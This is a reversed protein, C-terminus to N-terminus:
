WSVSDQLRALAAPGIGPVADLDQLGTFPGVTERHAIIKEATAPGVGPLTELTAADATNLDVRGGASSAATGAPPRPATAPVSAPAAAAGPAAALSAEATRADPVLVQQGDTLPAALNIRETRAAHTAGGAADVADAIRAGSPLTVVGPRAVAGVVHVSVLGASAGAPDASVAARAGAPPAAMLAPSGSGPPATGAAATASAGPVPASGSPAPASASSATAAVAAPAAATPTPSTLWGVAWWALAVVFVLALALGATRWQLLPPRPPPQEWDLPADDPDHPRHAHDM